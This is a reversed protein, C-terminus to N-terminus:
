RELDVAGDREDPRRAGALGRHQARDGPEHPRRAPPDREAVVDPEVALSAHKALRVLAADPEDELLVREERVQGNALVDRVGALVAGVLM